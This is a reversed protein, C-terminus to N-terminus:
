FFSFISSGTYISVSTGVLFFFFFISSGTYMSVSTGVDKWTETRGQDSILTDGTVDTKKPRVMNAGNAPRYLQMSGPIKPSGSIGKVNRKGISQAM